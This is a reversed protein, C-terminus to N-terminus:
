ATYQVYLSGETTTSATPPTASTGYSVNILQDTTATGHDSAEMGAVFTGAVVSAAPLGTANTLTGSAPTGLVPATMTPSTLTKNTLTQTGGVTVVSTANTGATSARIEGTVDLKVAPTATGIGFDGNRLMKLRQTWTSIGNYSLIDLTGGDTSNGTNVVLGINGRVTDTAHSTGGLAVYASTTAAIGGLFSLVGSDVRNGLNSNSGSGFAIDGAVDLKETPATVGIGLRNNVEDYASTGFFISGKTANSTSELTLDNGAATGGILTQGGSRGVLLPYQTHDDDTLGALGGHDIQAGDGGSHDHSDGNTVGKATAAYLSDFYTKLTAKINAWSLKKLVNSAASDILATTDADVPTTKETAGHISSGVNGADTVDALAEIGDLKTGDTAIDRGDVTGSVAINGSVTLKETPTATGIGVQDASADIFVLNTDTDGEIRTDADNGQENITMGGANTFIVGASRTTTGTRTTEVRLETGRGAGWVETTFATFGTVNALGSGTGGAWLMFGLRDGSGMAAGDNSVMLFGAGSGSGSTGYNSIYAGIPAVAGGDYLISLGLTSAGADVFAEGINLKTGPSNNGIGVRNTSADVFVTNVDTDGEIRTDVDAGAENIVTAGEVTLGGSTISTAGGITLANTTKNFVLGADGGLAGADNFQVQTDSGGPSATGGSPTSWTGDGRLFTTDSPTGTATLDGM